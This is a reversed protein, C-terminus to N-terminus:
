TCLPNNKGRNVTLPLSSSPAPRVSSSHPCPPPASSGLLPSVPLGTLFSSVPPTDLAPESPERFAGPSCCQPCLGRGHLESAPPPQLWDPDSSCPMQWSSGKAEPLAQPSPAEEPLIVVEPAEGARCGQGPFLPVNYSITHSCASHGGQSGATQLVRSKQGLRGQTAASPHTQRLRPSSHACAKPWLALAHRGGARGPCGADGVAKREPLSSPHSKLGLRPCRGPQAAM